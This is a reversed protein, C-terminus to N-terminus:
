SQCLRVLLRRISRRARPWSAEMPPRAPDLVGSKFLRDCLEARAALVDRRDLYGPLFLYGDEEMREWLADRDDIVDDSRRLEGVRDMAVPKGSYTLQPITATTM